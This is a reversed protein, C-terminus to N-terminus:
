LYDHDREFELGGEEITFGVDVVEVNEGVVFEAMILEALPDEKDREKGEEMLENADADDEALATAEEKVMGQDDERVHKEPDLGVAELLSVIM